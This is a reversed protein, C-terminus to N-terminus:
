RSEVRSKKKLLALEKKSIRAVKCITEEEVNSQLLRLVLERQGDQWGEQRGEELWGERGLKIRGMVREKMNAICDSEIGELVKMSFNGDYRSYCDMAHEILREREDSPLCMSSTFLEAVANEHLERVIKLALVYPYGTPFIRRLTQWDYDPLHLLLYGFDITETGVVSGIANPFTQSFRRPLWWKGKANSIVVPVVLEGSQAYITAQYVLLQRFFKGNQYSKHEFLFVVKGGSKTMVAVVADARRENGETDAFVTPEFKLTRFDLQTAKDKGLLFRLVEVVLRKNGSFVTGFLANHLDHKSM